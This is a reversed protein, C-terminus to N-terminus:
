DAAVTAPQFNGTTPKLEPLGPKRRCSRTTCRWRGTLLTRGSASHFRHISRFIGRGDHARYVCHERGYPLGTRHLIHQMIGTVALFLLMGIFIWDTHHTKKQYTFGKKLRGRLAWTLGVVLGISALYGFFHAGWHIEPGEQMAGLFFVILVLMTTYGLMIMM